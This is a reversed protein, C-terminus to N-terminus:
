RAADLLTQFMENAVRILQAAAQYAQQFRLMNAAEEDLNVGSLNQRQALAEDQLVQQADRNAQAQQTAVGIKSTLRGLAASISTTGGDLKPALLADAMALANRNDGNSASGDAVTFRDGAAPAGAITVQWGNIEIPEGSTYAFSGAGNVSYSTPTLFQIEIPDQLAPNAPDLVAGRTITAAGVNAANAGAQVPSAAALRTPDSVLVQFGQVLERTPRLLISDGGVATGSVVISLGDARLPDTSSGSGTLTVTTGNDLRKMSWSSGTFSLEYDAGTLAAASTITASAQPDGMNTKRAVANVPGTDFLDTGFDGKLDVGARHQANVAEAIGAAILGLENRAPDLVQSRFDLLGGLAGGSLASTVDTSGQGSSLLLRLRSGDYSDTAVSLTAASDNLVLAQGKGIFVNLVNGDQPVVNVSIKASLQDILRDRQDLLDNPPQGTAGVGRTIEQNLRAIGSALANIESAQVDAQATSEADLGRLQTDIHKLRDALGQAESLLVQRAAISTPETAVGQIANQFKQLSGSLGNEGGIFLRSVRESQTAFANLRELSSSSTRTQSILFDDVTRRVTAVDVGQGVWGNGFPSAPRTALEVRQRTYGDTNANAINHATTDLARQFALLGSLGSSLVQSM